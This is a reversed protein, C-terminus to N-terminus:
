NGPPNSKNGRGKRRLWVSGAIVVLALGFGTLLTPGQEFYLRTEVWWVPFRLLDAPGFVEERGTDVVYKGSEGEPSWVALYYRGSEPLTVEIQQRGWYRTQTFPEYFDEGAMSSAIIGGYGEVNIEVGGLEIEDHPHSSDAAEHTHSGSDVPLVENFTIEALGPGLLALTVGYEELGELQPVNIGAHFFAGAEGEFAYLHVEDERSLERYYAYSTTASPIETVEGEAGEGPRHAAAPTVAMVFQLLVTLGLLFARM